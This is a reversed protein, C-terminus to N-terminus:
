DNSQGGAITMPLTVRFLTGALQHPPPSHIEVTGGMSNVVRQVWYLGIGMGRPHKTTVFPAFLHDRVEPPIGPGDDLVELSFLTPTEKRINIEIRGSRRSEEIAEFASNLLNVVVTQIEAPNLQVKGVGESSFHAVIAHNKFRERTFDVLQSVLQEIEFCEVDQKRNRITAFSDITDSSNKIRKLLSNVRSQVEPEDSYLPINETIAHFAQLHNKFEHAIGSALFGMEAARLMLGVYQENEYRVGITILRGILDLLREDSETFYYPPINKNEVKFVGIAEDGVVLPISYLSRFEEEPNGHYVLNDWLGRHHGESRGRLDPFSRANFPSRRRLVWPTLGEAIKYDGYSLRGL